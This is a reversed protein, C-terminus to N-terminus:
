RRRIKVKGQFLRGWNGAKAPTFYAWFHAYTALFTILQASAIFTTRAPFERMITITQDGGIPLMEFLNLFFLISASAYLLMGKRGTLVFPIGLAIYAFLYREHMQTCLMFFSYTAMATGLMLAIAHKQGTSKTQSLFPFLRVLIGLLAIGFLTFGVTRYSILGFLLLTDNKNPGNGYLSFWLNFAGQTIGSFYHGVSHLYVNIVNTLTGGMAFPLLVLMTVVFGWVCFNVFEKRGGLAAALLLVPVAPAAQPKLLMSAACLVGAWGFYKRSAAFVSGVLAITFLSDTQGWIASDHIAAPHLAYIAAAALAFATGFRRFFAFLLVSLGADTLIAPLKIFIHYAALTSDYTSSWFFKYALGTAWFMMISLPPYSPLQNGNLQQVYSRALGIIVASKAWGKNVGIDFGYGAHPAFALRVCLGGLVILWLTSAWDPAQLNRLVSHGYWAIILVASVSILLAALSKISGPFPFLGTTFPDVRSTLMALIVLTCVFIGSDIAIGTWPSARSTKKMVALVNGCLARSDDRWPVRRITSHKENPM